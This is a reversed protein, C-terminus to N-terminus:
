IVIKIKGRGSRWSKCEGGEMKFRVNLKLAGDKMQQLSTISYKWSATTTKLSGEGPKVAEHM